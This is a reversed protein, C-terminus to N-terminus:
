SATYYVFVMDNAKIINALDDKTEDLLIYDTPADAASSAGAAVAFARVGSPRALRSASAVVARAAVTAAPFAVSASARAAARIVRSAM